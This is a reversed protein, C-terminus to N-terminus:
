CRRIPNAEHKVIAHSYLLLLHHHPRRRILKQAYSQVSFKFRDGEISLSLSIPSGMCRNIKNATAVHDNLAFLFHLMYSSTRVKNRKIQIM